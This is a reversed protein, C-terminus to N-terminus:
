TPGLVSAKPAGLSSQGLCHSYKSMASEEGMREGDGVGQMGGTVGGTKLPLYFLCLHNRIIINIIFEWLM